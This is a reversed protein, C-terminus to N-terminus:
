TRETRGVDVADQQHPEGWGRDVHARRDIECERLQVGRRGIEDDDVQRFRSGAVGHGSQAFAANARGSDDDRREVGGDQGSSAGAGRVAVRGAAGPRGRCRTLEIQECVVILRAVVPQFRPEGIGHEGFRGILEIPQGPAADGVREVGLRAPQEVLDGRDPVDRRRRLAVDEGGVVDGRLQEAM